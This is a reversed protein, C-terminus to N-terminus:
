QLERGNTPRGTLADRGLIRRDTADRPPGAALYGEALHARGLVVAAMLEPARGGLDILTDMGLRAEGVRFMAWYFRVDFVTHAPKELEVVRRAQEMRARHQEATGGAPVPLVVSFRHAARLMPLVVSEFQHWDVLAPGDDPLVSPLPVQSFDMLSTAWAANLAGIRRYRRALFEQWRSSDAATASPVFGLVVRSFDQWAAAVTADAPAQVPFRQPAPTIGEGALFEQYRSALLAGGQSPEWRKAAAVARIGGPTAPAQFLVPTRAARFHEIIRISSRLPDVDEQFISEDPCSDLALRLAMRLGRPTGRWQFFDLAHRIFLRRRPEGWAPDLAIGFWSSLWDLADAPASRADFLVQVAAIRDEIPTFFGELNALYRELFSAANPDERYIAPLYREPYSFRPYWARLAQLRPTSGGTGRLTLELQAYRGRARQFLLEWTGRQDGTPPSVWPLESGGSRLYLGPEQVWETDELEGREDTARSRIQVATGPPICADLLLRHWICGPTRGDLVPTLLVAETEYRPRRQAVLPILGDAFDYFPQGESVVLAKGGFLRMPFYEALPTLTLQGSQEQALFAFTQNGDAAAVYLRGLVGSGNPIFAFDHAVLRFSFARAQELLGSVTLPVPEGQPLGERYLLVRSEAAGRDLVLVRGDPLVDVAIPDEVALPSSADLSIGEPFTRAPVKRAPSGSEPQFIEVREPELVTMGLIRVVRFSADLRWLRRNDRDLVIVGGGPEPAMDFPVFPVAGPWLLQQPPGGSHLDFVLLGAPSLTGVVLYHHATVALGGLPMPPPPAPPQVPEFRGGTDDEPASPEVPWFTSTLGSGSSKVKLTLRDRDVWYDNGFRDRGTGRRDELTPPVDRPAALFHFLKPQLTLEAHEDDWAVRPPEGETNKWLETLTHSGQLCRAWDNRGLLLHFRTGNADM